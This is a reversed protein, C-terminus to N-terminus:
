RQECTLTISREDIRGDVTTITNTVLYDKGAEGGAIWVTTLTGDNALLSLTLDASDAAWTSTVITENDALWASWDISYDLFAQPDKTYTKISM